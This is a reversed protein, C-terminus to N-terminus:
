CDFVFYRSDSHSLLQLFKRVRALSCEYLKQSCNSRLGFKALVELNFPVMRHGKKLGSSLLRYGSVLLSYRQEPTVGLFTLYTDM